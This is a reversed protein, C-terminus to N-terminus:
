LGIHQCIVNARDRDPVNLEYFFVDNQVLFDRLSAHNKDSQEASEYRGAPDFPKNRQLFFNYSKVGLKEVYKVYNKVSPTILPDTPNYLGEYFASLWIPSDTVIYEVPTDFLIYESRAQKGFFYLQDFPKPKRGEWAWTKVYETVLEARLGRMKLEAFLACATTSKGVGSAGYLNIVKKNM